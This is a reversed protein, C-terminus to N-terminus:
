SLHGLMLDPLLPDDGEQRSAADAVALEFLHTVLHYMLKIHDRDGALLLRSNTNNALDKDLEKRCRVIM